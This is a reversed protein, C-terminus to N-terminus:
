KVDYSEWLFTWLDKYSINPVQFKPCRMCMVFKERTHKINWRFTTHKFLYHIFLHIFSLNSDFLDQNINRAARTHTPWSLIFSSIFYLIFPVFKRFDAPISLRWIFRFTARKDNSMETRDSEWSVFLYSAYLRTISGSRICVVTICYRFSPIVWKDMYVHNESDWFNM